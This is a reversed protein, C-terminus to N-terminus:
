TLVIEQGEVAVEAPDLATITSPDTGNPGEVPEGTEIDYRSGHCGCNISGGSVEAVVCGQHKCIASFGVFEGATPQTVVVEQDAYIAGGGVPIESTPGLAEGGGDGGNGGDGGDGGNSTDDGDSSSTDDDDSGCAVLATVSVGGLAAGRLVTRRALQGDGSADGSVKVRTDSM